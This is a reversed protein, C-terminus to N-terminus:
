PLCACASSCAERWAPRHRQFFQQLCERCWGSFQPAQSKGDHPETETEEEALGTDLGAQEIVEQAREFLFVGIVVHGTLEVANHAHGHVEVFGVGALRYTNQACRQRLQTPADRARSTRNIARDRSLGTQIHQWIIRVRRVRVALQLDCESDDNGFAEDHVLRLTFFSMQFQASHEAETLCLCLCTHEDGEGGKGKM